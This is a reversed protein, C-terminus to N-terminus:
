IGRKEAAEDDGFDVPDRMTSEFVINRHTEIARDFLRKTWAGGDPDTFEALRKDDTALIEEIREHRYRHEDGNIVVVNGNPFDKQEKWYDARVPEPNDAPHNGKSSRCRRGTSRKWSLKATSKM